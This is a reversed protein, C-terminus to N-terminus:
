WLECSAPLTPRVDRRDENSETTSTHQIILAFSYM